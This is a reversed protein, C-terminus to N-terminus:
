QPGDHKSLPQFTLSSGVLDLLEELPWPAGFLLPLAAQVKAMVWLSWLQHQSCIYATLAGLKNCKATPGKLAAVHLKMLLVFLVKGSATLAYAALAGLKNCSATPGKVAQVHLM